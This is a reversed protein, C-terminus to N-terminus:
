ENSTKKKNKGKKAEAIAAEEREWRKREKGEVLRKRIEQRQELTLEKTRKPKLPSGEQTSALLMEVVTMRAELSSVRAKLIDESEMPEEKTSGAEKDPRVGKNLVIM